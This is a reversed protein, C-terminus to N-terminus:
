SEDPFNVEATETPESDTITTATAQFDLVSGRMQEAAKRLAASFEEGTQFRADLQRDLAKMFVMGLSGPLHPAVDTLIEPTGESIRRPIFHAAFPHVGSLFQFFVIGASFLDSRPECKSGSIQEPAMYDPTGLVCGTRTLNSTPLHAIGFDLVKAQRGQAIFLNSPKIDRHVIGAAHAHGLADCVQAMLELKTVISLRLRERMAKRWDIGDLLEMAIYATEGVCGLDYVTVINPHQLRACARAERQFREFLEPQGGPESRLLKIAVLRDLVRDRARYVVGMSGTGLEALIEYKGISDL